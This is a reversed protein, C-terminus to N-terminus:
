STWSAAAAPAWCCRAAAACSRPRWSSPAPHPLTTPTPVPHTPQRRAAQPQPCAGSGHRRRGARARRALRRASVVAAGGSREVGGWRVKSGSGPDKPDVFGTPHVQVQDMHVLAAGLPAALAAGDGTAWPGNTTPLGAADPAHRSLLAKSAAFGGSAFVLADALLTVSAGGGGGGSHESGHESSGRGNGSGSGGGNGNVGAGAGAPPPAAAETYAVALRGDSSYAVSTVQPRRRRPPRTAPGRAARGGAPARRGKRLGPGRGASQAAVRRGPSVKSGTVIRVNGAGRAAAEAARVVAFGVNPGKANSRTRPASHGGLQVVSSLDAGLSELFAIAGASSAQPPGTPPLSLPLTLGAEVAAGYAAGAQPADQQSGVRGWVAHAARGAGDGPRRVALTEVLRADSLGGGSRLTDSAFLAATDAAPANVANIGSSARASNGGVVPNKELVVIQPTATPTPTPPCLPLAAHRRSRGTRPPPPPPLCCRAQSRVEAGPAARAAEIAAALGALGSGIIVVRRGAGAEPGTPNAMAGAGRDPPAPARAPATALLAARRALPALPGAGAGGRRAGAPTGSGARACHHRGGWGKAAPPRGRRAIGSAQRVGTADTRPLPLRAAQLVFVISLAATVGLALPLRHM